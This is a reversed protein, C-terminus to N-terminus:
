YRSVMSKTHDSPGRVRILRSADGLFIRHRFHFLVVVFGDLCHCIEWAFTATFFVYWQNTNLTSVYYFNFIEYFFLIGQLCSQMFFRIEVKRRRQSEESSAFSTHKRHFILLILTMIDVSSMAIFIAVSTYYDTYTSIVHGCETPAFNWTWSIPNYTIFCKDYWFYPFIHCFAIFWVIGIIVLTNQRSFIFIARAPIAISFFRNFSIALHSYVCADWCLINLQGLLKGLMGGVNQAQIYTTPASWIFFVFLVGSNAISHSLCLTGFSNKLIPNKMVVTIGLLNFILGFFAVFFIIAAALLVDERTIEQLVESNESIVPALSSSNSM